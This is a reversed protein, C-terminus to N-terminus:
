DKRFKKQFWQGLAPESNVAVAAAVSERIKDQHRHIALASVAASSHPDKKAVLDILFDLAPPLRLMAIALLVMDELGPPTRPWFDKLIAFTEPRRIEALAFIAAEQVDAGASSLFSSVFSLSEAPALALLASFCEGIVEPEKDPLRAKFRLLPMAALSGSGGLARAAGVRARKDSDLLLDTLHLLLDPPNIRALAFACHARLPGAADQGKEQGWGPEQVHVIGRLFIEPEDYELKNLAEVLAIKGRCQKDCEEPEIMLRDFAAVLDASLERIGRDGIVGAATAVVLNSPDALSKRLVELREPSVPETALTRLRDLKAEAGRRKGM